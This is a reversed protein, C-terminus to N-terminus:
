AVTVTRDRINDFIGDRLQMHALSVIASQSRECARAVIGNYECDTRIAIIFNSLRTLIVVAPVFRDITRRRRTFGIKHDFIVCNCPDVTTILGEIDTARYCVDSIPASTLACSAYMSDISQNRCQSRALVVGIGSTREYQATM